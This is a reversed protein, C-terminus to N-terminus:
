WRTKAGSPLSWMTARVFPQRGQVLCSRDPSRRISAPTHRESDFDDTKAAFNGHIKLALELYGDLKRTRGDKLVNAIMTDLLTEIDSRAHRISRGLFAGKAQAETIVADM